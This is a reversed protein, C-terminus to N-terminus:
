KYTSPPLRLAKSDEDPDRNGTSRLRALHEENERANREAASEYKGNAKGGSEERKSFPTYWRDPGKVANNVYTYFSARWSKAYQKERANSFQEKLYQYDEEDLDSHRLKLWDRMQNTIEFKSPNFLTGKSLSNLTSLSSSTSSSARTSHVAHETADDTADEVAHAIAPALAILSNMQRRQEAVKKGGESRFSQYRMTDQMVEVMVKNYLQGPHDNSPKFKRMVQLWKREQQKHYEEVLLLLDPSSALASFVRSFTVSNFGAISRLEEDDSPIYGPPEGQVASWVLLKHYWGRQDADWHEVSTLYRSGFWKFWEPRKLVTKDDQPPM